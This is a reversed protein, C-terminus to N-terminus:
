IWNNVFQTCRFNIFQKIALLFRKGGWNDPTFNINETEYREENASFWTGIVHSTFSFFDDVIFIDSMSKKKESGALFSWCKYKKGKRTNGKRLNYVETFTDVVHQGRKTNPKLCLRTNSILHSYASNYWSVQHDFRSRNRRIGFQDLPGFRKHEHTTWEGKWMSTM